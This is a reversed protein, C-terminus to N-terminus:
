SYYLSETLNLSPKFEILCFTANSSNSEAFHSV